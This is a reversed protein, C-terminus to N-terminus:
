HGLNSFDAETMLFSEKTTWDTIKVIGFDWQEKTFCREVYDHVYESFACRNGSLHGKRLDHRVESMTKMKLPQPKPKRNTGKAFSFLNFM